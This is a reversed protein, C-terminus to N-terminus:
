GAGEASTAGPATIRWVRTEGVKASGVDHGRKRVAGAIAGRISHAQWGTTTIMAAMDAGGPQQLATILMEIKTATRTKPAPKTTKPAKTM